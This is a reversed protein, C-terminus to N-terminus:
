TKMRKSFIHSPRRVCQYVGFMGVDSYETSRETIRLLITTAWPKCKWCVVSDQSLFSKPFFQALTVQSTTAEKLVGGLARVKETIIM